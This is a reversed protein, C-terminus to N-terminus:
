AAVKAKIKAASSLFLVLNHSGYEGTVRHFFEKGGYAFTIGSTYTGEHVIEIDTAGKAELKSIVEADTM